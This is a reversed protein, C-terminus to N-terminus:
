RMDLLDAGGRFFQGVGLQPGAFIVDDFEFAGRAAVEDRELPVGVQAFGAALSILPKVLALHPHSPLPPPIFITPRGAQRM